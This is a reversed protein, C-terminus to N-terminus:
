DQALFQMSMFQIQDVQGNKELSTAKTGSKLKKKITDQMDNM